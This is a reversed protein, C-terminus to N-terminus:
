TKRPPDMIRNTVTVLTLYKEAYDLLKGFIYNSEEAM